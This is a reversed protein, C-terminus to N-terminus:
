RSVLSGSGDLRYIVNLCLILLCIHFSFSVQDHELMNLPSIVIVMKHQTKDVLLPMAFPMTKRSGTGAISLCDLGLLLAECIDIQWDYPALGNFANKFNLTIEAHTNESSYGRSQTAMTRAAELVASSNNQM